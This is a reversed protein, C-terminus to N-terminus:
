RDNEINRIITFDIRLSPCSYLSRVSLSSNELEEVDAVYRRPDLTKKHKTFNVPDVYDYEADSRPAAERSSYPEPPAM